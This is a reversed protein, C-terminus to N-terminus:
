RSDPIKALQAAVENRYKELSFGSEVNGKLVREVLNGWHRGTFAWGLNSRIAQINDVIRRSLEASLADQLRKTAVEVEKELEQQKAAIEPKEIASTVAQRLRWIPGSAAERAAKVDGSTAEFAESFVLLTAPSRPLNDRADLLGAIDRLLQSVATRNRQEDTRFAILKESLATSSEGSQGQSILQDLVGLEGQFEARRRERYAPINVRLGASVLAGEVDLNSSPNEEKQPPVVAEPIPKLLWASVLILFGMGGLIVVNRADRLATRVRWLEPTQFAGSLARFAGSSTQESKDEADTATEASTGAESTELGGEELDTRVESDDVPPRHPIREIAVDAAPVRTTQGIRIVSVTINDTGGAENALEILQSVADNVDSFIVTEALEIQNVLNYLGDSCLVYVDGLEPKEQYMWCDVAVNEAPGLSRTLMHAVPHREAQEETLTGAEVLEQVLTHDRTMQGIKGRRIRFARSDGVNCVLIGERGFGLGVLTTGMGTLGPDTLSREFIAKNAAQVAKTVGEVNLSIEGALFGRITALALQSAEAGGQAGGMGDAVFFCRFLESDLLGHSDQNEERRLGIDSGSSYALLPLYDHPLEDTM